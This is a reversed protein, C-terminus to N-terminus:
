HTQDKSALPNQSKGPWNSSHQWLLFLLPAQFAQMQALLWRTQGSPQNCKWIKQINWKQWFTGPLHPYFSNPIFQLRIKKTGWSPITIGTRWDSKEPHRFKGPEKNIKELGELSSLCTPVGSQRTNYSGCTQPTRNGIIFADMNKSWTLKGCGWM